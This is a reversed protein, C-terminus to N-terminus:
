FEVLNNPHFYTHLQESSSLLETFCHSLCYLSQSSLLNLSRQGELNMDNNGCQLLLLQYGSYPPTLGLAFVVLYWAETGVEM